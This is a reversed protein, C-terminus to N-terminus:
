ENGTYGRERARQSMQRTRRTVFRIGNPGSYRQALEAIDTAKMTDPHLLTSNRKVAAWDAGIVRWVPSVAYLQGHPNVEDLWVAIDRTRGDSLVFRRLM